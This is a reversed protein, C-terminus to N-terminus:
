FLAHKYYLLLFIFNKISNVQDRFSNDQEISDIVKKFAYLATTHDRHFIRGISSFSLGILSRALYMAVQRARVLHALRSKGKLESIKLGYFDSVAKLVKDVTTTIEKEHEKIYDRKIAKEGTYEYDGYKKALAHNIIQRVRERTVNFKRSIEELTHPRQDNLGFRMEVMQKERGKMGEVLDKDTLSGKKSIIKLQQDRKAEHSSQEAVFYKYIFPGYEFKKQAIYFLVDYDGLRRPLGGRQLAEPITVNLSETLILEALYLQANFSNEIDIKKPNNGFYKQNIPHNPNILIFGCTPSTPNDDYTAQFPSTVIEDFDWDKFKGGFSRPERPVRDKIDIRAQASYKLCNAETIGSEDAKSGFFVVPIRTVINANRLRRKVILEEDKLKISNNSCILKIKSGIKIQRLDIYLNLSSERQTIARFYDPYFGLGNEPYFIEEPVVSVVVSSHYHKFRAELTDATNPKRGTITITKTFVGSNSDEPEEVTIEEPAFGIKGKSTKLEVVSGPRLLQTDILLQIGYRKKATVSISNRSFELGGAPKIPKVVRITGSSYEGTLESYLKNLQDFAKRHNERTTESLEESSKKVREEALIPYLWDKIIGELGKYFEHQKSFGDRSDTLIEEPHNKDNIKNLIIERAGTLKMFGFFRDAGLLNDLGFFTLDYVTNKNDYVLLGNEREDGVTLLSEKSKYLKVDIEVPKYKEFSLTFKKHDVLDGKPFVYKVTSEKRQGNSAIYILKVRRTDDTNILRLMYFISLKNILNEHDRIPTDKDLIFEVLTGHDSNIGWEQSIKSISGKIKRVNIFPKDNKEYFRCITAEGNKISKIIGQSHYFLVDSVGQGFIGRVNEGRSAGSQDSGYFEFKNILDQATMGEANDAIRVLKKKHDVYITIPFFKHKQNRSGSLLRRYSDDSNTIPETLTKSLNKGVANSRKRKIYRSAFKVERETM